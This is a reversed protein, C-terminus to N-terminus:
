FELDFMLPMGLRAHYRDPLYNIPEIKAFFFFFFLFTTACVLRVFRAVPLRVNQAVPEHSQKM